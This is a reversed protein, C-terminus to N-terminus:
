WIGPGSPQTASESGEGEGESDSTLDICMAQSAEGESEHDSPVYDEDLLEVHCADGDLGTITVTTFTPPAYLVLRFENRNDEDGEIHELTVHGEGHQTLWFITGAATTTVGFVM